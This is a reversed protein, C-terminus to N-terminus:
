QRVDERQFRSWAREVLAILISYVLVVTGLMMMQVSSTQMLGTVAALGCVIMMLYEAAATKRHGWGMRVLRQYYHDRHAQWVRERKLLRRVLTVTADIIFPSFVLAPFWWPWNGHRWGLLGFTAALFGLPVSGADGMFIRAPHRNFLLFAAAASAVSFNISAFAASDTAWAAVGYCSFGFATMGGALGDAGDMFNYLNTMWAIALTAALVGIVGFDHMLLSAAFSGSALLHLALRVSVPANWVDDFLSVVLLVAFALCLAVPLSPAAAWALVVGAHIAIGGTRPIPAEHLSRANPRDLAFRSRVLWWGIVLSATFATLPAWVAHQM